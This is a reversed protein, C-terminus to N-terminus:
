MGENVNATSSPNPADEQAMTTAKANSRFAFRPWATTTARVWLERKLNGGFELNTVLTPYWLAFRQRILCGLLAIKSNVGCPSFFRCRERQDRIIVDRSRGIMCRKPDTPFVCVCKSYTKHEAEKESISREFKKCSPQRNTLRMKRVPPEGLLVAFWWPFVVCSTM